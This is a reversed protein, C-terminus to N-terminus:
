TFACHQNHVLKLRPKMRQQGLREDPQEITRGVTPVCLQNKGCMILPEEIRIADPAILYPEDLLVAKARRPKKAEVLDFTHPLLGLEGLFIKKALKTADRADTVHLTHQAM